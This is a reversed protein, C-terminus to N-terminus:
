TAPRPRGPSAVRPAADAPAAPALDLVGLPGGVVEELAAVCREDVAAGTESRLQALAREPPWAPRYVRDSVLADYVDCVTLVRTALDLELAGRGHPYGKGDLREHHDRVLRRVQASFGGLEALLQSGDLPHRRIVAFEDADLPGPKCLIGAPTALKGVDHLLGGV